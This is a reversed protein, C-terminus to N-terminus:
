FVLVVDLRDWVELMLRKHTKQLQLCYNEVLINQTVQLKEDGCIYKTEPIYFGCGPVQYCM